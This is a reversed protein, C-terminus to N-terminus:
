RLRSAAVIRPGSLPLEGLGIPHLRQSVKMFSDLKELSALSQKTWRTGYEKRVARIEELIGTYEKRHDALDHLISLISASTSHISAISLFLQADALELPSQKRSGASAILWQIGDANGTGDGKGAM